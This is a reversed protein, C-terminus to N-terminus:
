PSVAVRPRYNEPCGGTNSLPGPRHGVSRQVKESDQRDPVSGEAGILELLEELRLRVVRAGREALEGATAADERGALDAAEELDLAGPGDVRVRRGEAV